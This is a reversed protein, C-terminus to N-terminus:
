IPPPAARRSCAPSSGRRRSSPSITTAPYVDLIDGEAGVALDRKGDGDFDAALVFTASNYTGM